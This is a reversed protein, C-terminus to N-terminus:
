GPLLLRAAYMATLGNSDHCKKIPERTSRALEDKSTDGSM